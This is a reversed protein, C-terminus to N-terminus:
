YRPGVYYGYYRPQGYYGYPRWHHHWYHHHEWREHMRWRHEQCRPGCYDGSWYVPQVLVQENRPSDAYASAGATVAGLLALGLIATRM